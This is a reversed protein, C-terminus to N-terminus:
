GGRGEVLCCGEDSSGSGRLCSAQYDYIVALAAGAAQAHRVKEEFTCRGFGFPWLSPSLSLSPCPHIVTILACLDAVFSLAHDPIIRRKARYRNLANPPSRQILVFVPSNDDSSANIALPACSYVDPSAVYLRGKMGEAPVMPGFDSPCDMATFTNQFDDFVTVAARCSLCLLTSLLLWLCRADM